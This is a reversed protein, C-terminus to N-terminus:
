LSPLWGLTEKCSTVEEAAEDDTLAAADVVELKAEFEIDALVVGLLTELTAEFVKDVVAEDLLRLLELLELLEASRAERDDAAIDELRSLREPVLLPTVIEDAAELECLAWYVELLATIESTVVCLM